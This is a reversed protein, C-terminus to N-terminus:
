RQPTIGFQTIHITLFTIYVGHGLDNSSLQSALVYKGAVAELAFIPCAWAVPALYYVCMAVIQGYLINAPTGSLIDIFTQTKEHDLATTCSGDHCKSWDQGANPAALVRFLGQVLLDGSTESFSLTYAGRTTDGVVFKQQWDGHSDVTWSSKAFFFGKSPLHVQVTGGPVWGNGTLTVLTGPRGSTQSWYITPQPAPQSKPTTTCVYWPSFDPYWASDGTSNYARIKFCMYTGPALGGWTYSTSDSGAYRSMVGNNIEFGTQNDGSYQWNLRIDNPDVATATLNSPPALSNDLTFTYDGNTEACSGDTVEGTLAITYVGPAAYTHQATFVYGDAPADIPIDSSSTGDGWDIDWSFTCASTDGYYYTNVTITPDTSACSQGPGFTCPTDSTATGRSVAATHVGAVGGAGAPAAQATSVSGTAAVVALAVIVLLSRSRLLIKNM